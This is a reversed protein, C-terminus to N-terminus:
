RYGHERQDWGEQCNPHCARAVTGLWQNLHLRAVQKDSNVELRSGGDWHGLYGPNWAHPLPSWWHWKFKQNAFNDLPFHVSGGPVVLIDGKVAKIDRGNRVTGQWLECQTPTQRDPFDLQHNMTRPDASFVLCLPCNVLNAPVHRTPHMRAM